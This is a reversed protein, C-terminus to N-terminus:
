NRNEPYYKYGLLYGKISFVTYGGTSKLPKNKKNKRALIIDELSLGTDRVLDLPNKCEIIQNNKFLVLKKIEHLEHHLATPLLIINKYYNNDRIRDLHHAELKLCDNWFNPCFVEAVARHAGITRPEKHGKVDSFKYYIYDKNISGPTKQLLKPKGSKMSIANGYQSVYYDTWEPFQVYIENLELEIGADTIIKELLRHNLIYELNWDFLKELNKM